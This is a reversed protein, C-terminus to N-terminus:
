WASAVPRSLTSSRVEGQGGPGPPPGGLVMVEELLQRRRRRPRSYTPHRPHGADTPNEGPRSGVAGRRHGDGALWREFGLELAGGPQGADNHDNAEHACLSQCHLPKCSQGGPRPPPVMLPVTSEGDPAGIIRGHDSFNSSERAPGRRCTDGCYDELEQEARDKVAGMVFMPLAGAAYRCFRVNVVFRAGCLRVRAVARATVIAVVALAM